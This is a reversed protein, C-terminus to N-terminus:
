GTRSSHSYSYPYNYPLICEHQYSVSYIDASTSDANRRLRCYQNPSSTDENIHCFCISNCHCYFQRHNDTDASPGTSTRTIEQGSLTRTVPYYVTRGESSVTLSSTQTVTLYVYATLSSTYSATVTGIQATLTRTSTLTSTATRTVTIAAGTVTSTVNIAPLTSTM